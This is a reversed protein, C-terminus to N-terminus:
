DDRGQGGADERAGDGGGRGPHAERAWPLKKQHTHLAAYLEHVKRQAAVLDGPIAKPDFPDDGKPASTSTSM